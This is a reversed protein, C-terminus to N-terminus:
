STVTNYQISLIRSDAGTAYVVGHKKNIVIANVDAKLQNFSKLLTGYKLDWVKLNGQSDGSFM